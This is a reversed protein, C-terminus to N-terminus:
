RTAAGTQRVTLASMSYDWRKIKVEKFLGALTFPDHAVFDGVDKLDDSSIIMVAGNVNGAEYDLTAGGHLVEVRTQEVLYRLHANLTRERLSLLDPKDEFILVYLRSM